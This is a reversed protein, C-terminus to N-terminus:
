KVDVVLKMKPHIGCLVTFSGPFPFAIDTASGPEQDGSDFKFEKADIYVHHQLDADDNVIRVVDGASINLSGVSFMRGKQSVITAPKRSMSGNSAGYGLVALMAAVAALLAITQRRIKIMKLHRGNPTPLPLIAHHVM